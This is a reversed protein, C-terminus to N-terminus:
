LPLRYHGDVQVILGQRCAEGIALQATRKSCETQDMVQQRLQNYRAQRGLGALAQTVHEQEVKKRAVATRAPAVGAASFCWTQSDLRARSHAPDARRLANPSARPLPSDCFQGRQYPMPPPSPRAAVEITQGGLLRAALFLAIVVVSSRLYPLIFEPLLSVTRRCAHCLYSRVRIGGDFATDVM